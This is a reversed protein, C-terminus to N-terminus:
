AGDSLKSLAKRLDEHAVFGVWQRQIVGRADILFLTPFISVGGYAADSERTWHVVPFRIKHDRVYRDRVADDYGLGLFHDANAGVITLGPFETALAVLVPAEKMCPPCGTFWVYLLVTKGHLGALDIDGGNLAALKFEPAPRGQWGGLQRELEQGFQADNRVADVDVHTIEGTKPSRSLFHPVRPDSEMVRLLVDAEGPVHLDFQQSITELSPPKGFKAQYHAVFLPIRFFANYLKNLAQREAPQTFVNNYLETVLLPEGPKLHAGIYRVVRAEADASSSQAAATVVQPAGLALAAVIIWAGRSVIGAVGPEGERNQRKM